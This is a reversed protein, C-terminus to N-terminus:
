QQKSKRQINQHRRQRALIHSCTQSDGQPKQKNGSSKNAKKSWLLGSAQKYQQKIQRHLNLYEKLARHPKVVEQLIRQLCYQLQSGWSIDRWRGAQTVPVTAFPLFVQLDDTTTVRFQCGEM